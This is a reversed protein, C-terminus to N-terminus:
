IATFEESRANVHKGDHGVTLQCAGYVDTRAVCRGDRDLRRAIRHIIRFARCAECPCDRGGWSKPASRRGNSFCTMKTSAWRLLKALSASTM